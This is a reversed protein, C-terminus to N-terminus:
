QLGGLRPDNASLPKADPPPPVIKGQADVWVNPNWKARRAGTYYVDKGGSSFSEAKNAGGRWVFFVVLALVAVIGLLVFIRRPQESM